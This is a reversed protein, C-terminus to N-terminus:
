AEKLKISYKFKNAVSKADLHVVVFKGMAGSFTKNITQNSNKKEAKNENLTYSGVSSTKGNPDMLCIDISTKAKGDTESIEVKGRNFHCPSPSVFMRGSTSVLTGKYKVGPALMRAGITAWSSKGALSNWTKIMEGVTDEVKDAAKICEPIIQPNEAVAGAVTCGAKKAVEGYKGWLDDVIYYASKCQSM